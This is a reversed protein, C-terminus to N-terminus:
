RKAGDGIQDILDPRNKFKMYDKISTVQKTIGAEVISVKGYNIWYEDFIEEGLKHFVGKEEKIQYLNSVSGINATNGSGQSDSAIKWKEAFFFDFDKIVSTISQLNPKPITVRGSPDSQGGERHLDEVNIVSIESLDSEEEDDNGIAKTYVVGLCYHGIYTSYPFQINKTSERQQFYAGHSGLTFAVRDGPRKFTTKIDVAFRIEHNDEKIFTLDPYYNQKEALKIMYGNEQAFKIISPYLHIELIKSVIKTDSSITFVNKYIDIFGKITWQGDACSVENTIDAIFSTFAQKFQEKYMAKQETTM